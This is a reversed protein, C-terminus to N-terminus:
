CPQPEPISLERRSRPVSGSTPGPKETIGVDGEVAVLRRADFLEQLRDSNESAIVRLPGGPGERYCLVANEVVGGLSGPLEIHLNVPLERHCEAEQARSERAEMETGRGAHTLARDAAHVRISLPADPDSAVKLLVTAMAVSGRQLRTTSQSFAERKAQHFAARFEAMQLWRYLTRCSIGAAQAAKEITGETLLALIAAEKKRGFKAGFHAM